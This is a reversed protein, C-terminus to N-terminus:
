KERDAKKVANEYVMNLEELVICNPITNKRVAEMCAEFEMWKVGDVEEKQLVFDDEERDTWLAFIRSYQRDHFPKGAFVDDWIVMRDGCFILDDESAEVSLEEKLERIASQRYGDGAPIHGASSIDYCGPFSDKDKSRLQLLIETKGARKRLIWVHSTRHMIGETHATERDITQGTPNGHEDVIDLLEKM